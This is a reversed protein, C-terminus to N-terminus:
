RVSDMFRQSVAASELADGACIDQEVIYWRTNVARAADFIAPWDLVGHGVEAFARDEGPAMDKVHLLTVRDAYRAITEVPDLGGYKVWYVDLELGLDEPATEDLMIDYGSQGDFREFEHAHNHYCLRLGAARLAAGARSLTKGTATWFTRDGPRVGAVGYRADFLGLLDIAATPADALQALDLHMSCTRLGAADLRKRFEEPTLGGFGAPEVFDYGMEKVRCLTGDVDENLYDRVTYLQLAYPLRNM